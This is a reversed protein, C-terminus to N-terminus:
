DVIRPAFGCAPCTTQGKMDHFPKGGLCLRQEIEISVTAGDLAAVFRTTGEKRMHMVLARVMESTTQLRSM